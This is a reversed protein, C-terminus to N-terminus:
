VGGAVAGGEARGQGGVGRPPPGGGAAGGGLGAVGGGALVQGGVSDPGGALGESVRADVGEYRGALLILHTERALEAAVAQTFTRGRSRFLTTYPFLTSRPPRRIM